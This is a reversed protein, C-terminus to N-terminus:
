AAGGFPSRTDPQTIAPESVRMYRGHWDLVAHFAPTRRSMACKLHFREGSSFPSSPVAERWVLNISTGSQAMGSSGQLDRAEPERAASDIDKYNLQCPAIMAVEARKAIAALRYSIHTLVSAENRGKLDASVLQLFDVVILKTAPKRGKLELVRREVDDISPMASDDIEVPLSRLYQGARALAAAVDRDFLGRATVGVPVSALNNLMREVISHRTMECSVFGVGHGGLEKTAANLAINLAIVTKGSKAAGGFIHLEGARYGHFEDDICRFGTRVVANPNRGREEMALITAAPDVQVFGQGAADAAIPLLDAMASQIAENMVVTGDDAAAMLARALAAVNRRKTAEILLDAHHRVNYVTPVIDITNGLFTTLQATSGGFLALTHRSSKMATHLSVPDIATGENWLKEMFHWLAKHRPRTFDKASLKEVVIPLAYEPKVMMASLVAEEAFLAETATKRDAQEEPMDRFESM